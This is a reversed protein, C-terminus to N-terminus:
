GLRSSVERRVTEVDLAALCDIRKACGRFRDRFWCPECHLGRRLAKVNPPLPGLSEHPTPGFLMVTPTGVAAAVHSLGSDNGAVVGASAMLEATGRLSLQGAFSRVHAPFKIPSGDGRSLDDVTGVVAVDDFAEALAAFHPWRKAAMEGTKCGPALVVTALTVESADSPAIPLSPLPQRDHPYGLTRAFQLYFEQENRYFLTDPPRPLANTRSAIARGFRAQYFPPLAPVVCEYPARPTGALVERVVSWPRLLAATEAYDAVLLVDVTYGLENLALLLPTALVVNGVGAGLHLLCCDHKKMSHPDVAAKECSTVVTRLRTPGGVKALSAELTGSRGPPCAEIDSRAWKPPVSYFAVNAVNELELSRWILHIDNQDVLHDIRSMWFNPLLVAHLARRQIEVPHPQQRFATRWPLGPVVDQDVAEIFEGAGRRFCFDSINISARPNFM